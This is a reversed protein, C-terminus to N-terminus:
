KDHSPYVHARSYDSVVDTTLSKNCHSVATEAWISQFEWADL